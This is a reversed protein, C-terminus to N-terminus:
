MQSRLRAGLALKSIPLKIVALSILYQLFGCILIVALGIGAVLGFNGCVNAFPLFTWGLVGITGTPNIVTPYFIVFVVLFVVTSAIFRKYCAGYYLMIIGMCAACGIIQTCAAEISSRGVYVLVGATAVSLLYGALMLIVSILAPISTQLKKKRPSAGVLNAANVTGLLQLLLLVALMLFYGGPFASRIMASMISFLLGFIGVIIGVIFSFRAGYGYKLMKFGLKLDNIM